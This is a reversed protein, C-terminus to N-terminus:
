KSQENIKIIIKIKMFLYLNKERQKLTSSSPGVKGDKLRRYGKCEYRTVASMDAVAIKLKM